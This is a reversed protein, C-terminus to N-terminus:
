NCHRNEKKDLVLNLSIKIMIVITIRGAMYELRYCQKQPMAAVMDATVNYKAKVSHQLLIRLEAKKRHLIGINRLTPILSPPFGSGSANWYKIKITYTFAKYNLNSLTIKM